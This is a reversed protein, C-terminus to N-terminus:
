EITKEERVPAAFIGVHTDLLVNTISTILRIANSNLVFNGVYTAERGNEDKQIRKEKRILGFCRGKYRSLLAGEAVDCEVGVVVRLKRGRFPNANEKSSKKQKKRFEKGALV